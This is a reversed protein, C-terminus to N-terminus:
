ISRLYDGIQKLGEELRRPKFGFNRRVSDEGTINNLELQKLEVPTVPPDKFIAGMVPVLAKVLSMPVPVKLRRDGLVELLADVMGSYSVHDPGGIEYVGGTYADDEMVRIVCRVVDEVAMPQFLSRGGGPVPVMCPPSLRLSQVLRNFFGFGRGYVISPRIITWRFDSSRVAEEAQWKSYAYKYAPNNVAGLASMYIFKKVGADRAAELMNVTGLYNVAQFTVPGRERIVAVLHVVTEVGACAKKLSGPDTVDGRAVEAGGPGERGRVLVRTRYGQRILEGALHSGIFGAAGTVLIM